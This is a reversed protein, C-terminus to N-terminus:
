YGLDEKSNQPTLGKKTLSKVAAKREETGRGTETGKKIGIKFGADFIGQSLNCMPDVKSRLM